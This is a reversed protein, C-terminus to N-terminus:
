QALYARTAALCRSRHRQELGEMFLLSEGLDFGELAEGGGLLPMLDLGRSAADMVRPQAARFLAVVFYVQYDHGRLLALALYLVVGPWDVVCLMSQGLWRGAFPAAAWGSSRLAASLLPLEEELVEEVLALLLLPPPSSGEAAASRRDGCSPFFSPGLGTAIGGSEGVSGAAAAIVGPSSRGRESTAPLLCEGPVAVGGGATERVGRAKFRKGARRLVFAARAAQRRLDQLMSSVAASDDGSAIFAIVAFWDYDPSPSASGAAAEFAAKLGVGFRERCTNDVFGLSLAYSFCLKKVVAQRREFLDGELASGREGNAGPSACDMSGREAPRAEEPCLLSRRAAAKRLLSFAEKRQAARPDALLAAVIPACRGAADWWDEDSASDDPFQVVRPMGQIGSATQVLAAPTCRPGWGVFDGGALAEADRLERLLRHREENPGGLITLSVALRARGLAAPEIVKPVCTNGRVAQKGDGDGCGLAASAITRQAASGVAGGGDGAGDVTRVGPPEEDAKQSALEETLSWDAEMEVATTLDAALNAALDLAVLRVDHPVDAVGGIATDGADLFPKRSPAVRSLGWHLWRKLQVSAPNAPDSRSCLTGSMFLRCIFDICRLDEAGGGLQLGPFRGPMDRAMCRGIEGDHGSLSRPAVAHPPPLGVAQSQLLEPLTILEGLRDLGGQVGDVVGDGSSLLESFGEPSLALRMTVALLRTGPCEDRTSRDLHWRRLERSLFSGCPGALGVRRLANVGVLDHAWEVLSLLLRDRLESDEQTSDHGGGGGGGGGGSIGSRGPAHENRHSLGQRREKELASQYPRPDGLYAVLKALALPVGCQWLAAWAAARRKLPNGMIPVLACAFEVTLRKSDEQGMSSFRCAPPEADAHREPSIGSADRRSDLDCRYGCARRALEATCRLLELLTHSARPGEPDNVFFGASAGRSSLLVGAIEALAGLFAPSEDVSLGGADGDCAADHDSRERESMSVGQRGDKSQIGGLPAFLSDIIPPTFPTLIGGATAKALQGVYGLAVCRVSRPGADEKAVAAAAAKSQQPLRQTKAGREGGCSDRRSVCLVLAQLAEKGRELGRDVGDKEGAEGEVEGVSVGNKNGEESDGRSPPCPRLAGRCHTALIGLFSVSQLLLARELETVSLWLARGLPAASGASSSAGSSVAGVSLRHRVLVVAAKPSCAELRVSAPVGSSAAGGAGNSAAVVAAQSRSVGRLGHLPVRGRLQCRSAMAGWLGADNVARVLRGTPLSRLWGPLWEDVEGAVALLHAPLLVSLPDHGGDSPLPTSSGTAPSVIPDRGNADASSSALEGPFAEEDGGSGGQREWATPDVNAEELSAIADGLLFFFSDVISWMRGEPLHQFTEHITVLMGHLARAERAACTLRSDGVVMLNRAAPDLDGSDCGRESPGAAATRHHPSPASLVHVTSSFLGRAHDLVGECMDAASMGMSKEYMVWHLSMAKAHITPDTSNLSRRALKLFLPWHNGFQFLEPDAEALLGLAEVASAASGGPSELGAELQGLAAEVDVRPSFFGGGGSDLGGSLDFLGVWDDRRAPKKKAHMIERETDSSSLADVNRRLFSEPADVTTAPGSGAAGVAATHVGAAQEVASRATDVVGAFSPSATLLAVARDIAEPRVGGGGSLELEGSAVVADVAAGLRAELQGSLTSFLGCTQFDANSRPLSEVRKGADEGAGEEGEARRIIELFEKMAGDQVRDM